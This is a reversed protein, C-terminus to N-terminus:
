KYRCIGNNSCNGNVKVGLVISVGSVAASKRWLTLAINSPPDNSKYDKM